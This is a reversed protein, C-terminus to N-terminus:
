LFPNVIELGDFRRGHQMDESYLIRSSTQIAARVIMADWFTIQHLRHLDTAAFFDDLKPEFCLLRSFVAARHKALSADLKLKRRANHFYEGLVQLSVSGTRSILHLEILDAAKKQKLPFRPDDTYLLINADFFANRSAM